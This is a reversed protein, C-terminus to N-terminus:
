HVQVTRRFAEPKVKGEAFAIALNLMNIAANVNRNWVTRLCVTNQCLRVAYYRYMSSMAKQERTQPVLRGYLLGFTSAYKSRSPVHQDSITHHVVSNHLSAQLLPHLTSATGLADPTAM